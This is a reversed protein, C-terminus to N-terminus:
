FVIILLKYSSTSGTIPVGTAPVYEAQVFYIGSYLKPLNVNVKGNDGATLPVTKVAKGNVSIVVSGTPATNAGTSVTVKATTTQWSFGFTRSLSLSTSSTYIVPAQVTFPVRVVTGSPAATMLLTGSGVADAPVTFTVSAAGATVPVTGLVVSSGEWTLTLATNAPSGLSTLDLKSVNLSVSQGPAVPGATVDTVQASHRAFNPSLPSNATIYAIWADRDVLGSDTTNTGNKFEWFNDGGELLFSFSGIRYSKAMDIPAGDIYIATVHDDIARTEDYTYSVNDSLGLNLFPRTTIPVGNKDRQWQQELVKKFQAGTLTQTWLNNLFPLVSNAEAYTIVGDPAYLLDTRLGGPNVIGIEAGGRDPSGLTAVLSNAVLNGITSESGRDESGAKFARSIDATVSGVPANGIVAAAAVAADVIGKVTAVRPYTAVLTADDVTTRPVNRQTYSVVSHTVKDFTLVVQGVNAGYSGTQLM